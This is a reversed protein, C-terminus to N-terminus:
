LWKEFFMARGMSPDLEYAAYGSRRYLAAARTNGELVELTIKCCARERALAETAALLASGVGLGRWAATVAIDHINLLPRAKFSSVGQFLNILGVAEGGVPDWALFGIYHPQQALLGPLRSKADEALAQGGGETSRAYEDLLRVLAQADAPDRPDLRAIRVPRASPRPTNM